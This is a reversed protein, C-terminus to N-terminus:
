AKKMFFEGNEDNGAAICYFSIDEAMDSELKFAYKEYGKFPNEEQRSSPVSIIFSEGRGNQKLSFIYYGYQMIRRYVADSSMVSEMLRGKKRIFYGNIKESEYGDTLKELKQLATQLYEKVFAKQPVSPANKGSFDETLAPKEAKIDETNKQPSNKEFSNKVEDIKGEEACCCLYTERGNQTNKRTIVTGFAGNEGSYEFIGKYGDLVGLYVTKEESPCVAYAKFVESEKLPLSKDMDIELLLGEALSKVKVAGCNQEGNILILYERQM